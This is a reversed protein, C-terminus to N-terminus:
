LQGKIWRNIEDRSNLQIKDNYFNNYINQHGQFSSPTERRWYDKAWDLLENFQDESSLSSRGRKILSDHCEEWSLNLFILQDASLAALASLDGFVGEVIWNEAMLHSALNQHRIEKPVAQTFSSNSWFIQDLHIIPYNKNTSIQQALYTKGSSSNGIILIKKYPHLM